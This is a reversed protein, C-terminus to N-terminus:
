HFNLLGVQPFCYATPRCMTVICSYFYIHASEFINFDNTVIKSLNKKEQDEQEEQVDEELEEQKRKKLNKNKKNKKPKQGYASRQCDLEGNKCIRTEERWTGMSNM